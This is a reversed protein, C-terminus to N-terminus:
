NKWLIEEMCEVILRYNFGKAQYRKIIKEKQIEDNLDVRHMIVYKELNKLLIDKDNEKCVYQDIKSLTDLCISTSFGNSKLYNFGSEKLNKYGKTQNDKCYGKFLYEAKEHERDEDYVLNSLLKAEFGKSSLKYKIKDFGYNKYDYEEILYKIYKQDDVFHNEILYEVVQDIVSKSYKKLILKEEIEHKSYMKNSILNVAYRKIKLLRDQNEIEEIEQDSLKKGVYLYFSSFSEEAISIHRQNEFAIQVGKKLFTIKSIVNGNKEQQM